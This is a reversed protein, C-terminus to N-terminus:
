ASIPCTRIREEFTVNNEELRELCWEWAEKPTSFVKYAVPMPQLMFISRIVMRQLVSPVVYAQGACLRQIELRNTEIWSAFLKRQTTSLTDLKMAELILVYPEGRAIDVDSADLYKLIDQDEPPGTFKAFIIPKCSHDIVIESM